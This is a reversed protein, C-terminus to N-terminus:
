FGYKHAIYNMYHNYDNYNEIRDSRRLEEDTMKMVLAFNIGDHLLNNRIRDTDNM